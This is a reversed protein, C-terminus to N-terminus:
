PPTSPCPRSCASSFFAPLGTLLFVPNTNANAEHYGVHATTLPLLKPIRTPGERTDHQRRGDKTDLYAVVVVVDDRGIATSTLKCSATSGHYQWLCYAVVAM